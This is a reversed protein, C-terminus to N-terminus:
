AVGLLAEKLLAVQCAEVPANWRQKTRVARGTHFETIGASALLPVHEARLGGGAIWRLTPTQWAARERLTELGADLGLSSGSTLIRDLGSLTACVGFAHAQDPTRDFARHLTWRAPQIGAALTHLGVLDLTGELTLFGFVFQDIGAARFHQASHALTDLAGPTVTFGDGPRLMVRLPISVAERIRVPLDLDPTLGDHEMASVVELRDAGGHEAAVADEVSIAIVELVPDAISAV